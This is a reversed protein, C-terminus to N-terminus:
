VRHKGHHDVADESPYRALVNHLGIDAQKQLLLRSIRWREFPMDRPLNTRTQIIIIAYIPRLTGYSFARILRLQLAGDSRTVVASMTDTLVGSGEKLLHTHADSDKRFGEVGGVRKAELQWSAWLDWGTSVGTGTSTSMFIGSTESCSAGQGTADCASTFCISSTCRIQGSGGSTCPGPHLFERSCPDLLWNYCKSM